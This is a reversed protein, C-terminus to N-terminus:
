TGVEDALVQAEEDIVDPFAAKAMPDTHPHEIASLRYTTRRVVILARAM